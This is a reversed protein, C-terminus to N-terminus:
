RRNERFYNEFAEKATVYDDLAQRKAQLEADTRALDPQALLANEARVVARALELITAASM